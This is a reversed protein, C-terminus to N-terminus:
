HILPLDKPLSDSANSFAHSYIEINNEALYAITGGLGLEGDDTHPALILIRNLKRLNMMTCTSLYVAIM